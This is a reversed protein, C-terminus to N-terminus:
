GSILSQIENVVTDLRRLGQKLQQQVDSGLERYLVSNGTPKGQEIDELQQKLILTLILGHLQILREGDKEGLRGAAVIDRLREPTARSRSGIRLALTRALSVLPLLGDRKLNLRGEDLSLNGLLSFRPAVSRTAQALLGLFAPSRSAVQVADTHVQRALETNGAVSVLDFFIDVSLIDAPSARRLWEGIRSRWQAITGRWPPSSVMVGGKCRPLGTADLTDALRQGLEAFWADDAESGAHILANDQDAGLLSEGRGGSGLVLVCWDAPPEGHGDAKMAEMCLTVARATLGQLESSIVRAIEVGDLDEALLHSAVPKVDAYAAALEPIDKATALADRLMDPGRARHRLLDRQSVMGVPLDYKDNVCLHRINMHDMRGLARYLMEDFRMAVVPSSMVKNVPTQDLDLEGKAVVRLLNNETVIGLPAKGAEGILLAGIKHEVMKRMAQRIPTTPEIFIPPSSMVDGLQKEFVYSDIRPTTAQSRVTVLEDPATFWGAQAQHLVLDQRESALAQAEGLTRIERDRLMPVMKAWVEAAARCDGHASHRDRIEVGLASAVTEFGLDPLSRQLAGMLQGLDIIPPEHWSLEARAFEHRLIAIDFGINHGIVVHGSFLSKLRGAIAPFLPAGAVDVDQIKHIATSQTPISITPNVLTDIEFRDTLRDGQMYIAAVQIVRDNRVDLGTTELDLVLTPLAVLPTHSPPPSM